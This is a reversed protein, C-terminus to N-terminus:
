QLRRECLQLSHYPKGEAEKKAMNYPELERMVRAWLLQPHEM